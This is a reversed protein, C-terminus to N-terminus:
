HKHLYRIFEDAIAPHSFHYGQGILCGNELLVAAQDASEIGEAVVEIDMSAALALISRCIQLDDASEPLDRVFERDIKLRDVAFRRLYSLSSYGKGFDDITIKVGLNKLEGLVQRASDVNQMMATETLEIELWDPSISFEAFLQRLLAPLGPEHFQRASLNFAIRGFDLGADHWIRVQKCAEHMVWRDIQSILGGEEAVPIFSGAPIFGRQPHHWRLLAEVGTVKGTDLRVQPQYHLEFQDQEIALPILARMEVLDRARTNMESAFFQFTNRGAQKASYMAADANSLLEVVRTGDVPYTAIGVSASIRVVQDDLQYPRSLEELIRQAVTAAEQTSNGVDVLLAFEDGGLHAVTDSQRAIQVLREAVVRLLSDGAAHGSSDNIDKFNDLDIFLLSFESKLREARAVSTSLIEEFLARNALGTLVDHHALYSLRAQNIKQTTIDAVFGEIFNASGNGSTVATARHWVWKVDGNCCVIRHEGSYEHDAELKALIEDGGPDEEGEFVLEVFPKGGDGTLEEPLYGILANTGASAFEFLWKGGSPYLRYVMGPLNQMLNELTREREALKLRTERAKSRKESERIERRVAPALRALESKIVYDSAGSKMLEVAAVEGIKGSVLIFPTDRGSERLLNLARQADFRPMSHDSLVVDPDHRELAEIYEGETEVRTVDVEFGASELALVDIEMDAVSDEVILVRIRTNM